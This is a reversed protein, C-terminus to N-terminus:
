SYLANIGEQVRSDRTAFAAGILMSELALLWQCFIDLTTPDDKMGIFLYGLGIGACRVMLKKFTPCDWTTWYFWLFALNNILSM